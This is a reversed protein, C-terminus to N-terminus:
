KDNKEKHPTPFVTFTPGAKKQTANPYPYRFVAEALVRLQHMKGIAAQVHAPRGTFGQQLDVLMATYMTDFEDAAKLLEPDEAYDVRQPNKAMPVVQSDGRPVPILVGQPKCPLDGPVYAREKELEDFAYFHSLEGNEDWLRNGGDGEGEDVIDKILAIADASTRVTIDDPGFHRYQREVYGGHPFPTNEGYHTKIGEWLAKYFAGISPYTHLDIVHVGEPLDGVLFFRAAVIDTLDQLSCSDPLKGPREISKATHLFATSYPNQDILLHGPQGDRSIDPVAVPYRAPAAAMIDPSGGIATLVNAAIALHRMEAIAIRQILLAAPNKPDKITWWGCLYTPITAFEIGIAKQLVHPLDEAAIPPPDSETM